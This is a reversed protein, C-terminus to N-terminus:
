PDRCHNRQIIGHLGAIELEQDKGLLRQQIGEQQLAELYDSYNGAFARATRTNPDLAVVRNVVRDLFAQDFTV